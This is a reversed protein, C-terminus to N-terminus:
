SKTELQKEDLVRTERRGGSCIEGGRGTNIERRQFM